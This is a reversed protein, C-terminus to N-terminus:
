GANYITVSISSIIYKNNRLEEYCSGMSWYTKFLLDLNFSNLVYDRARSHFELATSYNEEKQLLNGLNNLTM